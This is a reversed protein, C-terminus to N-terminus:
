QRKRKLQLAENLHILNHRTAPMLLLGAIDRGGWYDVIGSAAEVVAGEATVRQLRTPDVKQTLAEPQLQNVIERTRRGVALRYARLAEINIAASLRAVGQEDMANGTDCVTAQMAGLWNDQNLIQPNGAVLLNMTIDECRAIHWILWVISHECNRPIRRVQEESIDSFVDDEFSWPVGQAVKASHLMAHQSLFLQMAQEFHSTDLMVRRLETQQKLCMKRYSEATLM